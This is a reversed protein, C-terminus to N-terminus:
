HPRRSQRQRHQDQRPLLRPLPPDALPHDQHRPPPRTEQGTNHNATDHHIQFLSSLHNVILAKEEESKGADPDPFRELGDGHEAHKAHQAKEVDVSPSRHDSDSEHKDM